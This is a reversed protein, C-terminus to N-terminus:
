FVSFQIWLDVSMPPMGTYTLDAYLACDKVFYIGMFVGIGFM